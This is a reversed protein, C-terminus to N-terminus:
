RPSQKLILTNGRQTFELHKLFSMGLLVENGGMHPNINAKVDHLTIDGVSVSALHTLYTTITGNATTSFVPPGQKLGLQQATAAPVSVTTAGTDLIFEVERGNILGTVYYHGYRNRELTVAYVGDKAVSKVQRNPNRQADLWGSFVWTLLGLALLWAVYIMGRGMRQHGGNHPSPNTPQTM